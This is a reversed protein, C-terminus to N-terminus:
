AHYFSITRKYVINLTSINYVKCKCPRQKLMTRWHISCLHIFKLCYLFPCYFPDKVFILASIRFLFVKVFQFNQVDKWNIIFEEKIVKYHKVADKVSVRYDWHWMKLNAIVVSVTSSINISWIVKQSLNSAKVRIVSQFDFTFNSRSYIQRGSNM